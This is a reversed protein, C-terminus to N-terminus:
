ERRRRMATARLTPGFTTSIPQRIETQHTGNRKIAGIYADRAEDNRELMDLM